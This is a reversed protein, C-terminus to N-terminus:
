GKYLSQTAQVIERLRGATLGDAEPLIEEQRFKSLLSLVNKFCKKGARRDGRRMLLNGLAFNALVFDPTLYLARRISAIAEGESNREQLIIARLYHMLPDLKNDAIAKECLALAQELEGRDAFMRISFAVTEPTEKDEIKETVEEKQPREFSKLPSPDEAQQPKAEEHPEPTIESETTLTGTPVYNVGFTFEAPPEIYERRSYIRSEQHGKRYCIAEPFHIPTFKQFMQHSLESAGVILWGGDVLCHYLNEIVKKGREPAFYMLVNRCFIIDMASTNNLPSPYIDEALNLYEFTVMNRIGPLIESMVDEKPRFYENKLWSPVNRFSWKGYVGAMAKALIRPNIDTALITIHWNELGGIARLIAIAISYPEEGTACGASWIRLRKEGKERLHIFEPLIKKQLADFVRPERWFYTEAITLHSALIEIQERTPSSSIIWRIFGENDIFGFEKAASSTRRELDGWRERPFHLATKAAIFESLQSLLTDPINDKM